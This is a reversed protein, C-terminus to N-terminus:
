IALIKILRYLNRDTKKKKCANKLDVAKIRGEQLAIMKDRQGKKLLKVAETGLRSALLRDSATPVGGRQIYGLVTIKTEYGTRKAIYSAIDSAKGAGEAIIIIWSKKGKERGREIEQVLLNKKYKIEPLIVEEAGGALAAKLALDGYLRGMTEVVFIRDMSIATDRIRDIADLVINLATDFGIALDTGNIDNDITAPIGIVPIGWGEYLNHAGRLSGDGGMVTLGHIGNRRIVKVAKELGKKTKFAPSRATKLITGGRNIINSVSRPNLPILDEEILGQYGRKIGIVKLNNYVATRVISRLCANMGPCDGGSTLVGIKKIM